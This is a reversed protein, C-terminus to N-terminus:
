GIRVEGAPYRYRRPQSRMQLAYGLTLPGLRGIFMLLCMLVKSVDSFHQTIGTSLGVTALGSMTEFLMNNFETDSEGISFEIAALVVTGAFHILLFAAIISMARMLLPTPIRRQYVESEDDGRFTSLVAVFIVAVTAIKVGGTTSGSAGGIMMMALWIFETISTASTWDVTSFGSTRGALAQFGAGLVRDQAPQGKLLGNWEFLLMSGFAILFVVLNGALVLKADLSLVPRRIKRRISQFADVAERVVLFSLAGALVLVAISINVAYSARYGILSAFDGNLDFGANCFASVSHFLGHWVAQEWAMHRSFCLTLVLWGLGEVIFTFLAIQRSLSTAEQLSISPSGDRLFLSQGITTRGGSGLQFLIGAGVMFGLGGIQMLILIVAQGAVNWHNATDVTTLGTVSVASVSTFIADVVPTRHGSSTTLPTALLVAGACMIILLILAFRKARDRAGPPRQPPVAEPIEIFQSERVRRRLVVDYKRAPTDSM